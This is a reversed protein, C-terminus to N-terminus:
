CKSRSSMVCNRSYVKRDCGSSGFLMRYPRASMFGWTMWRMISERKKLYRCGIGNHAIDVPGWMQRLGESRSNFRMRHRPSCRRVPGLMRSETAYTSTSPASECPSISKGSPTRCQWLPGPVPAPALAASSVHPRLPSILSGETAIRRAFNPAPLVEGSSRAAANPPTRELLTKCKSEM